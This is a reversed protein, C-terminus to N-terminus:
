NLAMLTERAEELSCGNTRSYRRAELEMEDVKERPKRAIRFPPATLVPLHNLIPPFVYEGFERNRLEKERIYNSKPFEMLEEDTARNFAVWERVRKPVEMHGDQFQDVGHHKACFPPIAWKRQLKSGAQIIAHERTIRGECAGYLPVYMPLDVACRSYEPDANIEARLEPSM